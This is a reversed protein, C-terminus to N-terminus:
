SEELSWLNFSAVYTHRIGTKVARGAHTVNGNFLLAAGQQPRLLVVDENNDEGELMEANGTQRSKQPWFSTGGGTFAGLDSLVVNITISQKDAHPAIGGGVMYRNVAPEGPSFSGM